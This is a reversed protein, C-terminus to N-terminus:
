SQVKKRTEGGWGDADGPTGVFLGFIQCAAGILDLVYGINPRRLGVSGATCAATIADM